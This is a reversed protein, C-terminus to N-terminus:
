GVANGYPFATPYPNIDGELIIVKKGSGGEIYTLIPPKWVKKKQYVVWFQWTIWAAGTCM